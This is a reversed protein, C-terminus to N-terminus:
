FPEETMGAQFKSQAPDPTGPVVWPWTEYAGRRLEEPWGRGEERDGRWRVVLTKGGEARKLGFGFEPWRLWLSSGIPRFGDRDASQGHGSHAEMILAARGRVRVRDLAAACAEAAEESHKGREGEARYAKYLPGIVLVDPKHADMLAELWRVDRPEALNMGQNRCKVFLTRQYDTSAVRLLRKYARRSQRPSNELDIHLVRLPTVRVYPKFPHVGSALQVALQRSLTSKGAGEGGTLILRDGRELLNTVLWDHTADGADMFARLEEAPEAHQTGVLLDPAKATLQDVTSLDMEYAAAAIDSALAIARRAAACEAVTHAYARVNASSPTGAQLRHLTPRGGIQTLSGTRDLATAVTTLDLPQGAHFLDCCAQFILALNPLYLDSSSVVGAAVEVASDGALLMAGILSEEADRDHPPRRSGDTV